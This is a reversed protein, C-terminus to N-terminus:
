ACIVFKDSSNKLAMFASLVPSKDVDMKEKEAAAIKQQKFVASKFGKLPIRDSEVSGPRTSPPSENNNNTPNLLRVVSSFDLPQTSCNSSYSKVLAIKKGREEKKNVTQATLDGNTSIDGVTCVFRNDGILHTPIQIFLLRSLRWTLRILRPSLLDNHRGLKQVMIVVSSMISCMAILVIMSLYFWGILPVFTSTTPMKDSIMLLLISMSLLTTIGLTIKENREGSASSPTFFGVISIGTIICSPIILNVIYFLPKRKLRLTLALNTYNNPCCDYKIEQRQAQFGEMSWGDNALFNSTAVNDAFPVYDIGGNDYTWSGFTMTCSQSDFPFYFINLPCSFKYLTPYLLEVYVVQEIPSTVLKANILRREDESKVILTNYLTTDPIWIVNHPLVIEEIDDYDTPNWYLLEDRWREVIWANIKVSQQPENVEIIQYLEMSFSVLVADQASRTPKVKKDYWKLVDNVLRSQPSLRSVNGADAYVVSNVFLLQSILLALM